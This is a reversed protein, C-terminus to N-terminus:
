FLWSVAAFLARHVISVIGVATIVGLTFLFGAKFPDKWALFTMVIDAKRLEDAVHRAVVEVAEIQEPTFRSQQEGSM